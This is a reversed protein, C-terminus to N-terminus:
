IKVTQLLKIKIWIEDFFTQLTDTKTTKCNDSASSNM